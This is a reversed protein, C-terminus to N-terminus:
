YANKKTLLVIATKILINFDFSLSWNETYYVDHRVRDEMKAPTDTEGRLGNVQAFGTIGPKVRHRAFYGRIKQSYEANHDIAHPRPGVLSMNGALVNLLQPLEDLSSRRLFRGLRTVRPDDRSAQITKPEPEGSVRMTRFKYIWFAKNNFGLRKQKFLIPGPSDLRILIAIAAMPIAFIVLFVLALIYDEAAKIAVAWGSMPHGVISFIPANAFHGPPESFDLRMGIFDSGLYVNVPLERLQEVLALIREEASWPLAIVVDDVRSARVYSPISDLDGMVVRGGIINESPQDVFLATVTLFDARVDMMRKLLEAVHRMSGVIIMNRSFVGQRSLYQVIQWLVLRASLTLFVAGAAFAGIWARSITSSLKVAFAAALLFLFATGFAIVIKDLNPLPLVIAEFQYLESFQFLMVTTLWICCVCAAYVGVTNANVNVMWFYLAAGAGLIAASNVLVAIGSIVNSSIPFRAPRTVPPRNHGVDNPVHNM